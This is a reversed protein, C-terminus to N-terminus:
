RSLMWVGYGIAVGVVLIAVICGVVFRAPLKDLGPNEEILKVYNNVADEPFDVPLGAQIRRGIQELESRSLIHDTVIMSKAKDKNEHPTFGRKRCNTLAGHKTNGCKICIAVTMSKSRDLLYNRM